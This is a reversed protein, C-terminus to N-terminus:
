YIHMYVSDCLHISLTFCSLVVFCGCATWQGKIGRLEWPMHISSNGGYLCVLLYNLHM